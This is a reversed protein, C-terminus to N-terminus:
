VEVDVIRIKGPFFDEEPISSPTASKDFINLNTRELLFGLIFFREKLEPLLQRLFDLAEEKETVITLALSKKIVALDIKINGLLPFNLLFLLSFHDKPLNDKAKKKEGNKVYLRLTRVGDSFSVPIELLAGQGQEKRVVQLIQNGEIGKLFSNVRRLLLFLDKGANKDPPKTTKKLFLNIEESIKLLIGKLDKNEEEKIFSSPAKGGLLNALKNEYLLGSNRIFDKLYESNELHKEKYVLSDLILHLRSFLNSDLPHNEPKAQSLAENIGEVLEGLPIKQPLCTKM